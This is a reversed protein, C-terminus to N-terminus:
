EDFEDGNDDEPFDEDIERPVVAIPEMIEAQEAVLKLNRYRSLGTGAPILRGM